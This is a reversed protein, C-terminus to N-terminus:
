CRLVARRSIANMCPTITPKCPTWAAACSCRRFRVMGKRMHLFATVPSGGPVAFEMERLSGPLRQAAEEYARNALAQAQEALEDGKLHPYAAINYLTFCSALLTRQAHRGTGSLSEAALGDGAKGSMFGTAAATVSSRITYIMM